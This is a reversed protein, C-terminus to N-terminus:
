PKAPLVAFTAYRTIKLGDPNSGYLDFVVLDNSGDKLWCEPMYLPVKQPSEGLNHGNLWVHGARLGGTDLGLTERVNASPHYVFSSKWFAPLSQKPNQPPVKTRTPRTRRM